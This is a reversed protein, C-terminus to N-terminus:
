WRACARALCGPSAAHLASLLPDSSTRETRKSRAALPAHVAAHMPAVESAGAGGLREILGKLQSPPLTCWVRLIFQPLVDGRGCVKSKTGRCRRRWTRLHRHANIAVGQVFGGSHRVLITPAGQVQTTPCSACGHRTSRPADSKPASRWCQCSALCCANQDVGLSWPRMQATLSRGKCVWHHAAAPTALM